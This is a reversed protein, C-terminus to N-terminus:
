KAQPMPVTTVRFGQRIMRGDPLQAAETVVPADGCVTLSSERRWDIVNSDQAPRCRLKYRLDVLSPDIGLTPEVEFVAIPRQKGSTWKCWAKQGSRVALTVRALPQNPATQDTLFTECRLNTPLADDGTNLLQELLDIPEAKQCCALLCQSLPVYGVFDDPEFNIGRDHFAPRCDIMPLTIVNKLHAPIVADPLTRSEPPKAPPAFPVNAPADNSGFLLDAMHHSLPFMRCEWGKVPPIKPLQFRGFAPDRTLPTITDGTQRLCSQSSPTGDALLIEAKLRLSWPPGQGAVFGAALPITQENAISLGTHVSSTQRKNTTSDSWSVDMRVDIFDNDFVPEAEAALNWTGNQDPNCATGSCKQGSRGCIVLSAFAGDQEGPLKAPDASRLWDLTLRAHRPQDVFNTVGQLRLQDFVKARVVLLHKTQNWVAWGEELPVKQERALPTLDLLEDNADFFPSTAPAHKLPQPQTSHPVIEPQRIFHYAITEVATCPTVALLWYPYFRLFPNVTTITVNM